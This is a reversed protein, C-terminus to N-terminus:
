RLTIPASRSSHIPMLSSSGSSSFPSSMLPLVWRSPAILVMMMASATILRSLTMARDAAEAPIEEQDGQAHQDADRDDDPAALQDQAQDVAERQDDEEAAAQEAPDGAAHQEGVAGQLGPQRGVRLPIGVQVVTRRGEARQEHDEEAAEQRAALQLLPMGRRRVGGFAFAALLLPRGPAGRGRRRSLYQHEGPDPEAVPVRLAQPAGPQAHSHDGRGGEPTGPLAGAPRRQRDGAQGFVPAYPFGTQRYDGLRGHYVSGLLHYINVKELAVLTPPMMKLWDAESKGSPSDPAPAASMACIAPAYTMMSPQPFNVAAHQASATFIVMTLVEVLQSRGTIPRFGAVKGSGIVEGVWAALEVDATVDGDSAYYVAVYDAAWQRIANWVLLGDDRYPYDPLALPDDVNRAKLSEPLMGRYFDFGLRNGGATAQTDQIPAAFMVDIFGASPLLIRAAGENIFLTGEFHPALLVHLPHSPALTRQTALCFAESVLHTQALHVFMEHYNEEAVQVVTKAMQWGWYLDSESEAPRVFMPHTAPDQGCQIAVPLLRARDKGLAFLAIPAYAFGTGTLLKDVAGSPALKGLEAYDLLYLRRSAAAELLSDAAGMVRRFQEEGLPFNAPLADVRRILLPNPGAVRWYPSRKTTM